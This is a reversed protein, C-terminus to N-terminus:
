PSSQGDPKREFSPTVWRFTLNIRSKVHRRTKSIGHVWYQQTNGSMVLLSGPSLDLKLTPLTKKFRHKLIFRRSAGLSLSAIVPTAGLEPEDDAHYGMSDQGDRYLNLLVSNFRSRTQREVKQRLMVLDAFWPRPYNTVGSYRYVVEPDGYWACLRPTKVSRGFLKINAQTWDVQAQIAHFYHEAQKKQIFNDILCCRGDVIPLVREM